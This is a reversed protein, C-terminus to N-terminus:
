LKFSVFYGRPAGFTIKKWAEKQSERSQSAGPQKEAQLFTKNRLLKKSNLVTRMSVFILSKMILQLKVYCWLLMCFLLSYPSKQIGSLICILFDIYRRNGVGYTLIIMLCSEFSLVNIVGNKKKKRLCSELSFMNIVAFNQLSEQEEKLNGIPYNAGRNMLPFTFVIGVALFFTLM